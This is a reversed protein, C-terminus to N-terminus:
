VQALSAVPSKPLTPTELAPAANSAIAPKANAPFEARDAFTQQVAPVFVEASKPVSEDPTAVAPKGKTASKLLKDAGFAAGGSIAGLGVAKLIPMALAKLINLLAGM